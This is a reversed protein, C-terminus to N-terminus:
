DLSPESAEWQRVLAGLLNDLLRRGDPTQDVERMNKRTAAHFATVIAATTEHGKDTLKVYLARRDTPHPIREVLGREFFRDLRRTIASPAVDFRKWLDSPRIPSTEQQARKIAMLLRVDIHNLDFQAAIRNTTRIALNDIQAIRLQISFSTIDIDPLVAVWDRLLQGTPGDHIDDSDALLRNELVESSQMSLMRAAM